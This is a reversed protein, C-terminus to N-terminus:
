NNSAAQDGFVARIARLKMDGDGRTPAVIGGEGFENWAYILLMKQRRGAGCPIGLNPYADLASKVDRLATLWQEKNPLDYAARPDKWPRPDWGSPVYPVYPKKSTRAYNTWGREAFELLREYSYPKDQVPLNPMDMYTTLFDYSAYAAGSAVAGAMVGGGILPDPLGAEQATQRLVELRKAVRTSDNGNQQLFFDAGHIKFVPRGGVRLYSPNKMANCWIKCAKEWEADETIGFPPHNVYEVTFKLERNKPSTLFLRLGENLKDQHADRGEANGQYYWLFQFFGVGNGAAATIERDMTAPENYEGLLAARGPYNTRWDAGATFYKNPPERWWGSFYYIGVLYEPETSRQACRALEEFGFAILLCAIGGRVSFRSFRMRRPPKTRTPLVDTEDTTM